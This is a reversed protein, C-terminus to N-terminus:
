SYSQIEELLGQFFDDWSTISDVVLSYLWKKAIDKLAFPLFRLRVADDGLHHISMM